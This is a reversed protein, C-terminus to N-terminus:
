GESREFHMSHEPLKGFTKFGVKRYLRVGEITSLVVVFHFGMTRAHRLAAAVTATGVGKRQAAQVTGVDQIGAITDSWLLMCVSAPRGDLFGLYMTRKFPAAKGTIAMSSYCTNQHMWPILEGPSEWSEALVGIWQRRNLDSEVAKVFVGSALSGEVGSSDLDIAMAELDYDHPFGRAELYRGLDSPETLLGVHWIMPLHRSRFDEIASDVAAEVTETTLDCKMVVNFIEQKIGTFCRTVGGDESFQANPSAGICRWYDVYNQECARVVDQTSLDDLRKSGRKNL